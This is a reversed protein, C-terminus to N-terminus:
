RMDERADMRVHPMGTRGYPFPEASVTVFGLREYFGEAHHRAHLFIPDLGLERAKRVTERVLESGIGSRQRDLAVAVQRIQGVGGDDILRSYGVLRDGEFAVLHYSHPDKDGWDDDRAVGFPAMLVEWRLDNADRMKPDDHSVWRYEAM